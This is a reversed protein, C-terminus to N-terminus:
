KKEIEGYIVYLKKSAEPEVAVGTINTTKKLNKLVPIQLKRFSVRFAMNKCDLFCRLIVAHKSFIKTIM